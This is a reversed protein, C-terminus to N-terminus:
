RLFSAFYLAGGIHIFALTFVVIGLPVHAMHWLALLRRALALSHVQVQLRYREMLLRELPAAKARDEADLNRLARHLRWEHRWRLVARGFLLTWGHEPADAAAARAVAAPLNVGLAQLELDARAIQAELERGALEVGDLNRPVATYLYRGIFGSVVMVVTLLMLVGALGHFRGATHLLALYPGVIGTFIHIRLWLSTQGLTFRPIRKRLTYLTETSLMMLFGVIGLSHGIVGSPPPIGFIAACVYCATFAVIVLFAFLLEYPAAHGTRRPLYPLSEVKELSFPQPHHSLPQQCAPCTTRLADGMHTTSVVKCHPCRQWTEPM